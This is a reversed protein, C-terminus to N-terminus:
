VIFSHCALGEGKKRLEYPRHLHAQRLIDDRQFLEHPTGTFLLGCPDLVFVRTAYRNVLDMDHTTMLITKGAQQLEWLQDMIVEQTRADQGFTPEDLLYLDHEHLLMAAVSLRRKQGQSLAFPNHLWHNLLGFRELQSLLHPEPDGNVRTNGLEDIVREFIFQHEPNQFVFAMKQAIEKHKRQKLPRGDLMVEGQSLGRLGILAQLLSSKGAGNKGLIAVFEGAEVKLNVPTEWLPKGDYNLNGERIELVPHPHLDPLNGASKRSTHLPVRAQRTEWPPTQWAPIIGQEVMWDWEERIVTSTDGVRYITGNRDFLIVREMVDLLEEFKHEIVIVTHGEACLKRIEEFVLTSSYPDLNATPEDLIFLTPNMAFACALALKQKMGGSLTSTLAHLDVHLDFRELASQVCGKMEVRDMALNELGFAVEDDVHLMCFQSEPDQFVMGVGGPRRLSDHIWVDGFVEGEISKPILGAILFALTSKGCGSPGLILVSDGENLTFHVNSLITQQELLVSVNHLRVLTENSVSENRDIMNM